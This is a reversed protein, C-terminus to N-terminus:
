KKFCSKLYILLVMYYTLAETYSVKNDCIEKDYIVVLWTFILAFITDKM